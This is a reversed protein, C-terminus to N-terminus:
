KHSKGVAQFGMAVTLKHKDVVEGQAKLEGIVNAYRVDAQKYVDVIYDSRANNTINDDSFVKDSAHPVRQPEWGSFLAQMFPHVYSALLEAESIDAVASSFMGPLVAQVCRLVVQNSGTSKRLLSFIKYRAEDKDVKVIKKVKRQVRNSVCDEHYLRKMVQSYLKEQVNTSFVSPGAELSEKQKKLVFIASLSLIKKADNKVLLRMEAQQLRNAESYAYFM